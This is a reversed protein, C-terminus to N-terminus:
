VMDQAPDDARDGFWANVGASFVPKNGDWRVAGNNRGSALAAADTGSIQGGALVIV